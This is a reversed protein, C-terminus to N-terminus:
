CITALPNVPRKSRAKIAQGFPFVVLSKDRLCKKLFAEKVACTEASRHRNAAYTEKEGEKKPYSERLRHINNRANSMTIRSLFFLIFYFLIFTFDCLPFLSSDIFLLRRSRIRTHSSANRFRHATDARARDTEIETRRLRIDNATPVHRNWRRTNGKRGGAEGDHSGM